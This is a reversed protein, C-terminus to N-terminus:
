SKELVFNELYIGVGSKNNGLTVHDAMDKLSQSANAVAVGVGAIKIMSEDNGTNGFTIINEKDIGLKDAMELCAIGKSANQPMIEISFPSSFCVNIKDGFKEELLNKAKQLHKKTDNLLVKNATFTINESFNRNKVVEQGIFKRYLKFIFKSHHNTYLIDDKMISYDIKQADIFAIIEKLLPIEFKKNVIEKDNKIDTIVSGNYTALLGSYKDIELEKAYKIANEYPRGTAIMVIHGEKQIKEIVEKNKKTIRKFTTLLTGDLDIAIFKIM